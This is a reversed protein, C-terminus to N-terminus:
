KNHSKKNGKNKKANKRRIEKLENKTLLNERSDLEKKLIKLQEELKLLEEDDEWVVYHLNFVQARKERYLKLLQKTYLKKYYM